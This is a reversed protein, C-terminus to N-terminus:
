GGDKTIRRTLPVCVFSLSFFPHFSFSFFFPLYLYDALEEDLIGLFIDLEGM